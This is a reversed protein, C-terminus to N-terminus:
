RSRRNFSPHQHRSKICHEAVERQWRVLDAKLTRPLSTGFRRACSRELPGIHVEPIRNSTQNGVWGEVDGAIAETRVPLGVAPENRNGRGSSVCDSKLLAPSSVRRRSAARCSCPM